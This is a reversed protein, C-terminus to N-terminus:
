ARIAADAAVHVAPAEVSEAHLVALTRSGLVGPFDVGARARERAPGALGLALRESGRAGACDVSVCRGSRDASLVLVPRDPPFEEYHRARIDGALLRLPSDRPRSALGRSVLAPGGARVCRSRRAPIAAGASPPPRPPRHAALLSVVYRAPDPDCGPRQHHSRARDGGM